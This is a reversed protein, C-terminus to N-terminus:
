KNKKECSEVFRKMRSLRERDNEIQEKCLSEIAQYCKSLGDDNTTQPSSKKQRKPVNTETDGRKVTGTAGEVNNGVETPPFIDPRKLLADAMEESFEFFVCKAGSQKRTKEFDKFRKVLYKWKSEWQFSVAISKILLVFPFDTISIQDLM